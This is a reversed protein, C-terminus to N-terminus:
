RDVIDRKCAHGKPGSAVLEFRSRRRPRALVRVLTILDAGSPLSDVCFDGGVARSRDQFGAARLREGGRQPLRRCTLSCWNRARLLPGWPLCSSGKAVVSMSSRRIDILRWAAVVDEAVMTQSAAM